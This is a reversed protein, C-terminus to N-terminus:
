LSRELPLDMKEILIDERYEGFPLNEPQPLVYAKLGRQRARGLVALVWADDLVVYKTDKAVGALLDGISENKQIERYKRRRHEWEVLYEKGKKSNFFREESSVNAVDGILLKGGPKLLSIAKDIFKSTENENELYHLVSYVIIKDFRDNINLDLFNGAVLSINNIGTIRKELKGLCKPHDTGTISNIFFSLPVLINGAGCGIDLCKDSPSLNLKQIIDFVIYKEESEQHLYRSAAVTYNDSREAALGFNEFAIRGM